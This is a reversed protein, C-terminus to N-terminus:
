KYMAKLSAECDGLLEILDQVLSHDRGHTVKMIDFAQKLTQMAEPFMAQHHQLKGVKMVQVARVPHYSSYYM